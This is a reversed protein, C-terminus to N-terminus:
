GALWGKQLALYIGIVAFGVSVWRTRAMFLREAMSESDRELRRRYLTLGADLALCAVALTLAVGVAIPVTGHRGVTWLVAFALAALAAGRRWRSLRLAALLFLPWPSVAFFLLGEIFEDSVRRWAPRRVEVTPLKFSWQDRTAEFRHLRSGEVRIRTKFEMPVESHAALPWEEAYLTVVGTLQRSNPPLEYRWELRIFTGDSTRWTREMYRGRLETSALWHGDAYFQVHLDVYAKIRQTIDAPWHTPPPPVEGLVDTVWFPAPADLRVSLVDGDLRLRMDNAGIPVEHAQVWGTLATLAAALVWPRRSHFTPLHVM